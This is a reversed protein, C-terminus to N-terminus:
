HCTPRKSFYTLPLFRAESITFNGHENSFRNHFDFTIQGTPSMEFARGQQTSTILITGNAYVQHKGRIPSKFSIVPNDLVPHSLNNKPDLAIIQSDGKGMNNNFITIKGSLNWDPDHQRRTAGQRWWKIKLTTPSVVFLLNLSRMSVLLDGPLFQPFASALAGPLPDADNPHFPDYLWRHPESEAFQRIGLIDIGPNAAIIDGITIKQLIGGDGARVLTMSDTVTSSFDGLVADAPYQQWSWISGEDTFSLAHHFHGPIRWLVKGCYDQKVLASGHDFAFYISGQRDIELGHPFVHRDEPHPWPSDAQSINWINEIGGGPGILLVAHLSKDLNFVGQILRYGKPADGALYILPRLQNKNAPLEDLTKYTLHPIPISPPQALHRYPSIGFDNLFIQNWTLSSTQKEEIFAFVNDVYRHPWLKFKDVSLGYIFVAVLLIWM